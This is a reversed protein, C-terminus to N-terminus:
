FRARTRACSSAAASRRAWAIEPRPCSCGGPGNMAALGAAIPKDGFNLAVLIREGELERTFALLDGDALVREYRGFLLAGRNRRLDILRRYLQYMSTQERRQRAANNRDLWPGLPLWPKAATFGGNITADWQM